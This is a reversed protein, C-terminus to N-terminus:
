TESTVAKPTTAHYTQSFSIPESFDAARYTKAHASELSATVRVTATSRGEARAQKARAQLRADEAVYDDLDRFEIVPATGAALALEVLRDLRGNFDGNLIQSMRGKSVGLKEAFAQRSMGEKKLYADVARFLKQQTKVTYWVESRLLQERKIM